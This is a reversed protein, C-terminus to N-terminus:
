EWLLCSRRRGHRCFDIGARMDVAALKRRREKEALPLGDWYRRWEDDDLDDEQERTLIGM